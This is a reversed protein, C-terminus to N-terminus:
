RKVEATGSWTRWKPAGKGTKLDDPELTFTSWPAAFLEQDGHRVGVVNTAAWTVTDGTTRTM